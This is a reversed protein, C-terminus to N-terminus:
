RLSASIEYFGWGFFLCVLFLDFLPADLKEGSFVAVSWATSSGSSCFFVVFTRLTRLHSCSAPQFVASSFFLSIFDDGVSVGIYGLM